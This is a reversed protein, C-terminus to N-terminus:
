LNKGFRQGVRPTPIGSWIIPLGINAPYSYALVLCVRFYMAQPLLPHVLLGRVSPDENFRSVSDMVGDEACNWPFESLLSKISIEECGQM